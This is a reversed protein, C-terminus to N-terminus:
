KGKSKRKSTPQKVTARKVTAKKAKAPKEAATKRAAPKEIETAPSKAPRGRRKPVKPATEEPLPSKRPRGRPRKPLAAAKQAKLFRKIPKWYHASWIKKIDSAENEPIGTQTMHLETGTDTPVFRLILISDEAERPWSAARWSQIILRDQEVYLTKGRFQGNGASFDSGAEADGKARFGTAQSQDAAKAFMPFLESPTVPFRVIKMMVSFM